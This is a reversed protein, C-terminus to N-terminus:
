AASGGRRPSPRRAQSMALYRAYSEAGMVLFSPMRVGSLKEFEVVLRDGGRRLLDAKLDLYREYDEDTLTRMGRMHPDEELDCVSRGFSVWTDLYPLRIRASKVWGLFKMSAPALILITRPCDEPIKFRIRLSLEM